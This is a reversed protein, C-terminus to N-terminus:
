WDESFFKETDNRVNRREVANEGGIFLICLVMGLILLLLFIMGYIEDM